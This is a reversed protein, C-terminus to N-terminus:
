RSGAVSVSTLCVVFAIQGVCLQWSLLKDSARRARGGPPVPSTVLAWRIVGLKRWALDRREGCPLYQTRLRVTPVVRHLLLSIPLVALAWATHLTSESFLLWLLTLIVAFPWAGWPIKRWLNGM